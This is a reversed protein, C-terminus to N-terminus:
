GPVPCLATIGTANGALDFFLDDVLEGQDALQIVGVVEQGDM